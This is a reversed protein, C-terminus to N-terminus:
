QMPGAASKRVLKLREATAKISQMDAAIEEGAAGEVEQKVVGELASVQKEVEEATRSTAAGMSTKAIKLGASVRQLSMRNIAPGKTGATEVKEIADDIKANLLKNEVLGVSQRALAGHKGRVNDAARLNVMKDTRIDFLNVKYMFWYGAVKIADQIWWWVICYLWVWLPMLTYDGLALGETRIDDTRGDPWVCGLVTSITLALTACVLLIPSPVSAWFFEHHTRASFLTLFDSISVKLYITTIVKGYPLPPLGWRTFLSTASWSDLCAWLLLLSSACAVTGLMISTSFLSRLNWKEPMHSPNVNDAMRSTEPASIQDLKTGGNLTTTLMRMIIPLLAFWPLSLSIPLSLFASLPSLPGYGISILTGDNLITILMLMIVPLSFFEPWPEDGTVEPGPDYEDPKFAFLAIFFFTLLQLTAAIRYNIFTKMRQFICRAIVMGEVITSLGPETLVIDAAARAADTAGHVAVGVDARKLAPADNVGDGTMGCAFGCQRLTEVILYKHEPYVQAFGDAAMVMNGHTKALDKPVKGEATMSPLGKADAINTGLGLVRSTEKAILVHDGTIMKIEVGYEM